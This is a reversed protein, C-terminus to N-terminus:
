KRPLSSRIVDASYAASRRVEPDADALAARQLATLAEPTGVLGLGRAAAERVVPSTDNNLISTLTGAAGPAHLRGLQVAAEGRERPDDNQLKATYHAIDDSVGRAVPRPEPGEQVPVPPPAQTVVPAPAPAAVPTVYVPAPAPQIVTVPRVYVPAPAYYIPYPRYYHPGHYHGYPRGYYPSGLSVGVSWGAQAAPAALSALTTLALVLGPTRIHRIM